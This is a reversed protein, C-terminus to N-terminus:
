ECMKVFGFETFFWRKDDFWCYDTDGRYKRFFHSDGIVKYKLANILVDSCLVHYVDRNIFIPITSDEFEVKAIIIM